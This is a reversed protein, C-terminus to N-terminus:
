TLKWVTCGMAGSVYVTGSQDVAIGLHGQFERKPNPIEWSKQFKGETSFVAVRRRKNIEEGVYLHDHNHDMCIGEPYYQEGERRGEEVFQRIYQGDSTFIQINHNEDDSVYVNGKSDCAIGSPQEFQGKEKGKSGFKDYYTLDSNLIYVCHKVVDTVYVRKNVNNVCIDSPYQLPSGNEKGVATILQGAPSFKLLRNTEIDVVLINEEWDVTVRRPRMEVTVGHPGMENHSIDNLKIGTKSFISVRSKDAEAVIVEGKKNVAVGFPGFFDGNFKHEPSGAM